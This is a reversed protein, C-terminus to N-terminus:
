RCWPNRPVGHCPNPSGPQPALTSVTVDVASPYRASATPLDPEDLATTDGHLLGALAKIAGLASAPRDNECPGLAQTACAIQVGLMGFLASSDRRACTGTPTQLGAPATTVLQGNVSTNDTFCNAPDDALTADALDGNTPNGFAGNNALRNGAIRNGYANFLCLQGAVLTQGGQCHSTSAASPGQWPYILTAIGYSGQDSVTNAAVTDDRGGAIYIGAGIFKLTGGQAASGPVNPDNNNTVSNAFIVTCSRSNGAVPGRRGAPCAGDQPPPASLDQESALDIGAGNDTITSHELVLRGGANIATFGIASHQALDHDFVTNCDSCGGIHLASDSMNSAASETISGPGRTNSVFIGYSAVDARAGSAATSTATIDSAEFGGLGARATGYGGDFALQMGSRDQGVFNCVTLNDVSVGSAKVVIGNRGAGSPGSNQWAPDGDCPQPADPLTGDVIVGNRDMGVLHVRPTTVLVGANADPSEHYDGPAILIWDGPKAADVAGQVDRYTGQRDHWTGVLLVRGGPGAAQAPRPSRSGVLWVTCVAAVLLAVRVRRPRRRREV